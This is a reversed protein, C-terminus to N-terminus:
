TKSQQRPGRSLSAWASRLSRAGCCPVCNWCRTLPGAVVAACCQHTPSSAATIGSSPRRADAQASAPPPALPNHSCTFVPLPASPLLCRCTLLFSSPIHRNHFRWGVCAERHARGEMEGHFPRPPSFLARPHSAGASVPLGGRRRWAGRNKKRGAQCSQKRPHNRCCMNIQRQMILAASLQLDPGALPVLLEKHILLSTEPAKGWEVVCLGLLPQSTSTGTHKLQRTKVYKSLTYFSNRSTTQQETHTTDLTDHSQRSEISTRVRTDAHTGLPLKLISKHVRHM